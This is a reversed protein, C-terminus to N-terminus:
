NRLHFRHEFYEFDQSNSSRFRCLCRGKQNNENIEVTTEDTKVDLKRFVVIILRDVHGYLQFKDTKYAYRAIITTQILFDQSYDVFFM